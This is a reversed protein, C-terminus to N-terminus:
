EERIIDFSYDNEEIDFVKDQSITNLHNLISKMFNKNTSPINVKHNVELSREIDEAFSKSKSDNFGEYTKM